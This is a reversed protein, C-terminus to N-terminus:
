RGAPSTMPLLSKSIVEAIQDAVVQRSPEDHYMFHTRLGFEQAKQHLPVRKGLFHSKFDGYYERGYDDHMLVVSKGKNRAVIRGNTVRLDIATSLRAILDRYILAEPSEMNTDM